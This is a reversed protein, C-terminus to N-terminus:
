KILTDFVEIRESDKLSPEKFSYVYKLPYQSFNDGIDGIFICPTNQDSCPGQTIDEWDRNKINALTFVKKTQAMTDLLFLEAPNGGDNLTWLFGSNSISAVLGSPEELKHNKNTGISRGTEFLSSSENPVLCGAMWFSLCVLFLKRRGPM